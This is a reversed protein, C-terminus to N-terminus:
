MMKHYFKKPKQKRLIRTKLFELDCNWEGFYDQTYSIYYTVAVRITEGIEIKYAQPPAPLVDYEVCSFVEMLEGYYDDSNSSCSQIFPHIDFRFGTDSELRTIVLLAKGKM